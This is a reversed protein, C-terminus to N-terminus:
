NWLGRNNERAERELKVFLDTYKVNPPYTAVKAYGNKVLEANVFTGDLLYVYALLRKYRDRKQVDYELKVKKNEILKRTYESAELAYKEVKKKTHKSEPTDIGILRVKEGKVTGNDIYFTDGDVLKLVPFINAKKDAETLEIVPKITKNKDIKNTNDSLILENNKYDIEVKGFKSLASQGFLLPADPNDIVSAQINTLTINCIEVTKLNIVLGEHISGDAIQYNNVGLIDDEALLGQKLLTRAESTSITIDSAGTDFIFFLGMGNIKVPVQYVGNRKEMKLVCKGRTNKIVRSTNDPKNENNSTSYRDSNTTNLKQKNRELM